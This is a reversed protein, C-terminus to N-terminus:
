LWDIPRTRPTITRVPRTGLAAPWQRAYRAEASSVAPDEPAVRDHVLTIQGFGLGAHVGGQIRLRAGVHDAVSPTRLCGSTKM